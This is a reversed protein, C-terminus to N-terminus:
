APFIRPAKPASKLSEPPFIRCAKSFTLAFRKRFPFIQEDVGVKQKRLIGNEAIAPPLHSKGIHQKFAPV